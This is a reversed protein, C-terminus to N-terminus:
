ERFDCWVMHEAEDNAEEMLKVILDKITHKIKPKELPPLPPTPPQECWDLCLHATMSDEGCGRRVIHCDEIALTVGDPDSDIVHDLLCQVMKLTEWENKRDQENATKAIRAQEFLIM